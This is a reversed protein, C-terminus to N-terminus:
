NAAAAAVPVEARAEARIRDFFAIWHRWMDEAAGQIVAEDEATFNPELAESAQEV